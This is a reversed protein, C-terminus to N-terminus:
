ATKVDRSSEKSIGLARGLQWALAMGAVACAATFTWTWDWGGTAGAIWAVVPPGVFQGFASWQQMWGITTSVTDAGPALRVAMAFLTGPIVGGVMSFLLVGFCRVVPPLGM